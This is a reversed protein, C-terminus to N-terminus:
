QYVIILVSPLSFNREKIFLLEGLIIFISSLIFKGSTIWLSNTFNWNLRVLIWHSFWSRTIQLHHRRISQLLLKKRPYFFHEGLIIFISSLISKEPHYSAHIPSTQVRDLWFQFLFHLDQSDITSIGTSTFCLHQHYVYFSLYIFKM